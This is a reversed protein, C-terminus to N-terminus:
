LYRDLLRAVRTRTRKNELHMEMVVHYFGDDEEKFGVDKACALMPKTAPVILRVRPLDLEHALRRTGSLLPGLADKSFEAVLKVLLRRKARQPSAVLIGLPIATDWEAPSSGALARRSGTGPQKSQVAASENARRTACEKHWAGVFLEGKDFSTALFDTDVQFFTWGESALEGMAKTFPASSVLREIEDLAKKREAKTGRPAMRDARGLGHRLLFEISARTLRSEFGLPEVLVKTVPVALNEVITLARVPDSIREFVRRRRGDSTASVISYRGVLGLGWSKGIHLSARNRAGTAYRVSEAGLKLAKRALFGTLLHSLGMGRFSPDVRPGEFWAERKNLLTLKATGIPREGLSAVAFFGKRDRLWEDWVKDIYDGWEGWTRRCFGLVVKKDSARARRITIRRADVTMRTEM